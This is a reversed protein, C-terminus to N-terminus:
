RYGSAYPDEACVIELPLLKQTWEYLFVAAEVVYAIEWMHGLDYAAVDNSTAPVANIIAQAIHYSELATVLAVLHLHVPPVHSAPFSFQPPHKPSIPAQVM